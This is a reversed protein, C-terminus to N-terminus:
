CAVNFASGALGDRLAHAGFAGLIIGLLLCGAGALLTAQVFKITKSNM